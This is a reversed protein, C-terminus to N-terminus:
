WATTNSYASPTRTNPKVRKALEPSGLDCFSVEIGFRPLTERALHVTGGYLDEHFLVHDGARVIGFLATSIAAMGSGFVMAAEASELNAIKESVSVINTVNYYRPYPNEGSPGPYRHATSPFIPTVVGGMHPDPRTGAHVCRTSQGNFKADSM